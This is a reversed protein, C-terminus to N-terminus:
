REAVVAVLIVMALLAVAFGIAAGISTGGQRALEIKAQEPTNTTTIEKVTKEVHLKYWYNGLLGFPGAIGITIANSLMDSLGFAYECLTEIGVAGIFIWSYFYMKRYAMWSFALLFAAWNWSQKGKKQEAIEWKHQYYEYNKGVFIKLAEDDKAPASQVSPQALQSKASTFVATGCAPCFAAEAVVEKGCKSCYMSNEGQTRTKQAEERKIYNRATPSLVLLCLVLLILLALIPDSAMFILTAQM